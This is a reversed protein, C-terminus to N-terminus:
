IFLGNLTLVKVHKTSRQSIILGVLNKYLDRGTM